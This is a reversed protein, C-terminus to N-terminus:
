QAVSDVGYGVLVRAYFQEAKDGAVIADEISPLTRFDLAENHVFEDLFTRRLSKASRSYRSFLAGKVVEPLNRLAFVPRDLNTFYRGLAEAEAETFQANVRM